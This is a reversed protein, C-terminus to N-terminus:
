FTYGITLAYVWPDIDVDIDVRGLNTTNATADSSIDLNWVSGNILWSDNVRYDAGLQLSLGWSADLSLSSNGAVAEFAGATDEDWFVTYNVGIGAYPRFQADSGLFYYQLNLTPPLHKASGVKVGLAKSSIDHEFPTAALLEVGLNDSLMYTFTLGVQSNDDVDLDLIDSSSDPNVNALGVRAIWDGKEAVAQSAAMAM